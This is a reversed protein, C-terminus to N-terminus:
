VSAIILILNLVREIKLYLDLIFNM